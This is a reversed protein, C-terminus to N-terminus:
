QAERSAILSDVTAIARRLEQKIMEQREELEARDWQQKDSRAQQAALGREIRSLALELRGIAMPLNDSQMAEKGHKRRSSYRATGAM